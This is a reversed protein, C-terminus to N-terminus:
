DQALVVGVGEVGGVVEGSIEAFKTLHLGSALQVVVGPLAAPCDQALGGGVGEMGVVVAGGIEAIRTVKVRLGGSQDPPTRAEQWPASSSIPSPGPPSPLPCCTTPRTTPCTSSAPSSGSSPVGRAATM